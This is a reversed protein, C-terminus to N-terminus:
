VTDEKSPPATPATQAPPTNWPSQPASTGFGGKAPGPAAPPQAYTSQSYTAQPTYAYPQPPPPPPPAPEMGRRLLSLLGFVILLVPWTKDFGFQTFNNFAFLVGITILTVPGRIASAISRNSGNM